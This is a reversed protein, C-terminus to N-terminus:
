LNQVGYLRLFSEEFAAEFRFDVPQLQSLESLIRQSDGPSAAYVLWGGAETRLFRARGIVPVEGAPIISSDGNTGRLKVWLLREAKGTLEALTSHLVLKGERLVGIRDCLRQVESLVHSSFFITRGRDRLEQLVEFFAAQVLPDLGTTPEDLVILEPDHQLAQVIGLKQRMGKSYHRVKKRLDAPTFQLERCLWDRLPAAGGSLAKYYRLLYEGTYNELLGLEGPLYGIRSHQSASGPAARSGFLQLEGRSPRLFGLILRITTTKGSGNPGLCGFIEGSRISLDLDEVGREKGYFRTLGRAEIVATM